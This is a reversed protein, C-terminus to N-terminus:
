ASVLMSEVGGALTALHIKHAPLDYGDFPVGYM